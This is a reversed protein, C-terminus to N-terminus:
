LTEHLDGNNCSHCPDVRNPTGEHICGTCITIEEPKNEEDFVSFNYGYYKLNPDNGFGMSKLALCLEDNTANSAREIILQIAKTRSIDITSKGGM